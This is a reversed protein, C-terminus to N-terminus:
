KKGGKKEKGEEAMAKAVMRRGIESISVSEREDLSLEMAKKRLWDAQHEYLAMTVPETADILKGRRTM